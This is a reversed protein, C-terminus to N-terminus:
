TDEFYCSDEHNYFYNLKEYDQALGLVSQYDSSGEM